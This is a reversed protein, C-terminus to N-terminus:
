ISSWKGHCLNQVEGKCSSLQATRPLDTALLTMISCVGHHATSAFLVLIEFNIADTLKKKTSAVVNQKTKHTKTIHQLGWTEPPAATRSCHGSGGGPPPSTQQPMGLLGLGM